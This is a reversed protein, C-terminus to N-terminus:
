FRLRAADAHRISFVADGIVSPRFILYKRQEFLLLIKADPPTMDFVAQAARLYGDGASTNVYDAVPAIGFAAKWCLVRNAAFYGLHPVSTFIMISLAALILLKLGKGIGRFLKAAAFFLPILAPILFRCQQSSFFWFAYSLASVALLASIRFGPGGSRVSKILLAAVSLLIVIFQTGFYGDFIDPYFGLLFPATFFFELTKIGYKEDGMAFHCASTELEAPSGGFFGAFFPCFPNGTQAWPRAYFVAAFFLAIAGLLVLEKLPFARKSKWFAAGALLVAAGAASVGTLKVSMAAGAFIGATLAASLSAKKAGFFLFLLGFFNLIIFPESYITGSAMTWVPSLLAAMSFIVAPLRPLWLRLLVYMFGASLCWLAWVFARPAAAGGLSMLFMYIFNSLSPFGSFPNDKYVFPFNDALWQAPVAAQYTMEDWGAPMVMGRGLFFLAAAAPLVM